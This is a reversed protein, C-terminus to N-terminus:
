DIICEQESKEEGNAQYRKSVMKTSRIGRQSSRSRSFQRTSVGKQERVMEIPILNIRRQYYLLSGGRKGDKDVCSYDKHRRALVKSNCFGGLLPVAEIFGVVSTREFLNKFESKFNGTFNKSLKRKLSGRGRLRFKLRLVYVCM